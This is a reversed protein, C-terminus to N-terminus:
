CVEQLIIGGSSPLVATESCPFLYHVFDRLLSCVEKQYRSDLPRRDHQSPIAHLSLVCTM